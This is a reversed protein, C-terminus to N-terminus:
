KLEIRNENKLRKSNTKETFQTVGFFGAFATVCKSTKM